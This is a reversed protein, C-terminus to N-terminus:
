NELFFIRFICQVRLWFTKIQERKFVPRTWCWTHFHHKLEANKKASKMARKCYIQLMKLLKLYTYTIVKVLTFSNVTNKENHLM